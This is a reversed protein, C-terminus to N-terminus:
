RRAFSRFASVEARLRRFAAGIEPPIPGRRIIELAVLARAALPELKPLVAEIRGLDREARDLAKLVPLDGLDGVREGLRKLERVARLVQGVVLALIVVLAIATAWWVLRHASM